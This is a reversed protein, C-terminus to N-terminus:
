GFAERIIPGPYSKYYITKPLEDFFKKLADTHTSFCLEIPEKVILLESTENTERFEPMAARNLLPINNMSVTGSPRVGMGSCAVGFILLQDKSSSQAIDFLQFHDTPIDEGTEELVERAVADKWDEHFDVYGGPLALQFGNGFKRRVVMVGIDPPDSIPVIGVAVPTPNKFSTNQCSGCSRPWSGSSHQGGCFSCHSDMQYTSMARVRPVIRLLRTHLM